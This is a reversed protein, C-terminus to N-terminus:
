YDIYNTNILGTNGRTNSLMSSIERVVRDNTARERADYLVKIPLLEHETNVFKAILRYIEVELYQPIERKLVEDLIPGITKPLIHARQLSNIIHLAKEPELNLLRQAVREIQKKPLRIIMSLVIQQEKETGNTGYNIFQDLYKVEGLRILAYMADINLNNEKVKLYKEIEQKVEINRYGVFSLSHICESKIYPDDNLRLETLLPEIAISDNTYGLGRIIAKKNEQEADKLVEILSCVAISSKMGGLTMCVQMFRNSDLENKNLSQVLTPIANDGFSRFGKIFVPRISRNQCNAYAEFILGMAEPGFKAFYNSLKVAEDIIDKRKIDIGNIAEIIIPLTSNERIKFLATLADVFYEEGKLHKLIGDIAEKERLIGAVEIALRIHLSSSSHELLGKILLRGELSRYCLRGVLQVIEKRTEESVLAFQSSERFIVEVANEGIAEIEKIYKGREDKPSQAFSRLANRVTLYQEETVNELINEFTIDVVAKVVGDYYEVEISDENEPGGLNDFFSLESEEKALLKEHQETFLKKLEQEDFENYIVDDDEEIYVATGTPDLQQKLLSLKQLASEKISSM